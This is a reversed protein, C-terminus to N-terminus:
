VGKGPTYFIYELSLINFMKDTGERIFRYLDKMTRTKSLAERYELHDYFQIDIPFLVHDIQGYWNLNLIRKLDTVKKYLHRILDTRLLPNIQNIMCDMLGALYYVERMKSEDNRNIYLGQITYGMGGRLAFHTPMQRIGKNGKKHIEKRHRELGASESRLIQIFCSSGWDARRFELPKLTILNDPLSNVKQWLPIIKGM